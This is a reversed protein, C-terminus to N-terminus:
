GSFPLTSSARSVSSPKATPLGTTISSVKGSFHETSSNPCNM